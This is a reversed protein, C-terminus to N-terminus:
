SGPLIDPYIQPRRMKKQHEWPTGALSINTQFPSPAELYNQWSYPLWRCLYFGSWNLGKVTRHYVRFISVSLNQCKTLRTCKNKVWWHLLCLVCSLVTSGCNNGQTITFGDYRVQQCYICWPSRWLFTSDTISWQNLLSFSFCHVRLKSFNTLKVAFTGSICQFFFTDWDSKKWLFRVTKVKALFGM